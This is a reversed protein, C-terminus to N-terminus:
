CRHDLRNAFSSLSKDCALIQAGDPFEYTM